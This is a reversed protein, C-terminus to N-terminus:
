DTTADPRPRINAPAGYDERDLALQEWEDALGLLREKHHPDMTGHAERRVMAARKRCARPDTDVMM